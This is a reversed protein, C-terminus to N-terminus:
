VPRIRLPTRGRFSAALHGYLRTVTYSALWVAYWNEATTGQRQEADAGPIMNPDLRLPSSRYTAQKGAVMPCNTRTYTACVPHLAPEFSAQLVLDQDRVLVVLPRDLKRGCVGCLRGHFATRARREDVAGFLYTGDTRRPTIWPVVLGGTTPRHALWGPIPATM